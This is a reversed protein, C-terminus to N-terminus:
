ICPTINAVYKNGSNYTRIIKTELLQLLKEILRDYFTEQQRTGFGSYVSM